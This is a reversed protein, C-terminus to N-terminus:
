SAPPEVITIRGTMGPVHYKCILDYTGPEVADTVPDLDLTDGGGVDVDIPTGEITFSHLAGDENVLTLRQSASATFCAPVFENGSLRITFSATGTLDVCDSAAPPDEDGCAAVSLAIVACLLWPAVRM